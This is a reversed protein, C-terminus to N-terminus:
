MWSVRTSMHPKRHRRPARISNWKGPYINHFKTTSSARNFSINIVMCMTGSSPTYIENMLMMDIAVHPMHVSLFILYCVRCDTMTFDLMCRM